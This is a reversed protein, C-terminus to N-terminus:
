CHPRQHIHQGTTHVYLGPCHCYGRLSRAAFGTIPSASTNLEKLYNDPTQLNSAHRMIKSSKLLRFKLRPVEEFAKSHTCYQVLDPSEFVVTVLERLLERIPILDRMSQLLAAYETEM